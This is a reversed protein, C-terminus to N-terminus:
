IILQMESGLVRPVVIVLSSHSEFWSKGEWDLSKRLVWRM